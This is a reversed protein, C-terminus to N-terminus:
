WIMNQLNNKPIDSDRVGLRHYGLRLCDKLFQYFGSLQDFFYDIRPNPYKNMITVKRLKRYDISKILSSDKKKVFLVLTGWPSISHRIFGKDLLDKMYDKLEKLEAISMKYPPIYIPQTNPFLDIGFDIERKPPVGPLDEPFENVVPFSEHTPTKSSFDKHQVLHYLYGKSIMKKAMFYSIFRGM